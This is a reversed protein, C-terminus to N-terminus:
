SMNSFLLLTQLSFNEGSLMANNKLGTGVERLGAWAILERHLLKSKSSLLDPSAELRTETIEMLEQVNTRPVHFSPLPDDEPTDIVGIEMASADAGGPPIIKSTSIAHALRM